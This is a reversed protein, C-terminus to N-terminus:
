IWFIKSTVFSSIMFVPIANKFKIRQFGSVFCENKRRSITKINILKIELSKLFKMWDNNTSTIM